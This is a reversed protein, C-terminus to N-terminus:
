FAICVFISIAVGIVSCAVTSRQASNLDMKTLDSCIQNIERALSESLKERFEGTILESCPHSVFAEDGVSDPATELRRMKLIEEKTLENAFEALEKVEDANMREIIVTDLAKFLTYTKIQWRTSRPMSEFCLATVKPVLYQPMQKFSAFIRCLAPNTAILRKGDFESLDHFISPNSEVMSELAGGYNEISLPCKLKNLQSPSLHPFLNPASKVQACTLGDDFLGFVFDPHSKMWQSPIKKLLPLDFKVKGDAMFGDAVHFPPVKLPNGSDLSETGTQFNFADKVGHKGFPNIFKSMCSDPVTAKPALKTFEAFDLFEECVEGANASFFDYFAATDLNNCLPFVNKPISDFRVAKKFYPVLCALAKPTLSQL